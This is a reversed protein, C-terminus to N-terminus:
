TPVVLSLYTNFLFYPITKILNEHIYKILNKLFEETFLKVLGKKLFEEEFPRTDSKHTIIISVQLLQM